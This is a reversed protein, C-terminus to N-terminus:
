ILVTYMCDLMLQFRDANPPRIFINTIHSLFSAKNYPVHMNCTVVALDGQVYAYAYIIYISLAPLKLRMFIFYLVVLLLLLLFLFSWCIM